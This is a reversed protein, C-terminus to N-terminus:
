AEEMHVQHHHSQCLWRVDLRNDYDDHHAEIKGFCSDGKRECEGRVLKGAKIARYVARHALVQRQREPQSRAM